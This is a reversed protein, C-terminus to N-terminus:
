YLNFNYQLEVWMSVARGDKMAPVFKIGQAAAIARETLGHPLKQIVHLNTVEGDKSFVGRLIVTGEVGFKRASDTYSPERKELIRVKQTVEKGTLIRNPDDSDIKVPAALANGINAPPAAPPLSTIFSTFFKEQSWDAGATGLVVLTYIHERAVFFQTAGAWGGLNLTYERGPLDNRSVERVYTMRAREREKEDLNDRAAQLLERWLLEATTDLYAETKNDSQYNHDTVSWITYTALSTSSRYQKGSVTGTTQTEVTPQNPMWIHFSEGAPAVDIWDPNVVQATSSAAAPGLLCLSFAITLVLRM